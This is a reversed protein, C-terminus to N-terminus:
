INDGSMAAQQENILDEFLQRNCPMVNQYFQAPLILKDGITIYKDKDQIDKLRTEESLPFTHLMGQQDITAIGAIVIHPNYNPMTNMESM